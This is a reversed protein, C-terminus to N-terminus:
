KYTWHLPNICDPHGCENQLRFSRDLWQEFIWRIALKQGVRPRPYDRVMTPYGGRQSMRYTPQRRERETFLCTEPLTSPDAKRRIVDALPPCDTKQALFEAQDSYAIWHRPNICDQHGCENKLRFPGSRHQEFIVRIAHKKGIRPRQGSPHPIRLCEDGVQDLQKIADSARLQDYVPM